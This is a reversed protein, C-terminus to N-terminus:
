QKDMLLGFSHSSNATANGSTQWSGLIIPVTPQPMAAQGDLALFFPFQQYGQKDTSLGFYHSNNAAAYDSMQRSGLIIPM